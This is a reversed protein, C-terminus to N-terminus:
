EEVTQDLNFDEIDKNNRKDQSENSRNEFLKYVLEKLTMLKYLDLLKKLVAVGLVVALLYVSNTGFYSKM